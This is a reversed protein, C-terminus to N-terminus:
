RVTALKFWIKWVKIYTEPKGGTLTLSRRLMNLGRVSYMLYFAQWSAYFIMIISLMNDGAPYVGLLRSPQRM